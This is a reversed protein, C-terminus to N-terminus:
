YTTMIARVTDAVTADNQSRITMRCRYTVGEATTPAVINVTLWRLKHESSPPFSFEATGHKFARTINRARWDPRKHKGVLVANVVFRRTGKCGEVTFTDAQSSDNQLTLWFRVGEGDEMRVSVTQKRGTDNYIDNGRWPHPLPDIVCGTSLGCLKIWADPRPSAGAGGAGATGPLALISLTLSILLFSAAVRKTM